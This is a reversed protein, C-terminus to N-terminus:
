ESQPGKKVKRKAAPRLTQGGATEIFTLAETRELGLLTLREMFPELLEPAPDPPNGRQPRPSKRQVYGCIQLGAGRCKLALEHVLSLPALRKIQRETGTEPDWQQEPPGLRDAERGVEPELLNIAQELSGLLDGLSQLLWDREESEIGPEFSAPEALPGRELRMTLGQVSTELPVRLSPRERPAELSGPHRLVRQLAEASGVVVLDNPLPGSITPRNVDGGRLGRVVGAIHQAEARFVAETEAGNWRGRGRLRTEAFTIAGDIPSPPGSPPVTAERTATAGQQRPPRQSGVGPQRPRRQSGVDASRPGAPRGKRGKM